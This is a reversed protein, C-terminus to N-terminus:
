PGDEGATLCDRVVEDDIVACPLATGGDSRSENWYESGCALPEHPVIDEQGFRSSDGTAQVERLRSPVRV